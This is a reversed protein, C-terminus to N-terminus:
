RRQFSQVNPSAVAQTAEQHTEVKKVRIAPVENNKYTTMVTYLVIVTGGWQSYDKTGAIEAIRNANTRNLVLGKEIESFKVVIKTDDGVSQPGAETITLKTDAKVDDSKMWDSAYYDDISGM